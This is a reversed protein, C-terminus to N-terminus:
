SVPNAGNLLIWLGVGAGIGLVLAAFSGIFPRRAWGRGKMLEELNALPAEHLLAADRALGRELQDIRSLVTVFLRVM